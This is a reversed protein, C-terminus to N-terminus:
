KKDSLAYTGKDVRKFKPNTCLSANVTNWPTKGKVEKSKMILNTIEKYHLPEGRKKLIEYAIEAITNEKKM